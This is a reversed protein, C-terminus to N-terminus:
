HIIKRSFQEKSTTNGCLCLYFAELGMGDVAKQLHITFDSFSNLNSFDITIAKLTELNNDYYIKEEALEMILDSKHRHVREHCGCSPRFINEGEIMQEEVAKGAILKILAKYACKGAKYEDRKVTSLPPQVYGSMAGGDYGTIIVDEPIQYGAKQLTTMAGVAMFDNAAVIAQPLSHNIIRKAFAQGSAYEFDGYSIDEEGYSLGFQKMSTRFAQLREISDQNYKPGSLYHIKHVNHVKVLHEVIRHIGDVNELRVLASRDTGLPINIAVAPVGCEKIKRLIMDATGEHHITVMDVIVGAFRRLDPLSYINYEGKVYSLNQDNHWGECTFLFVNVNEKKAQEIIGDIMQKYTIFAVEGMLLAIDM